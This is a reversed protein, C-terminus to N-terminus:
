EVHQAAVFPYHEKVIWSEGDHILLTLRHAVFDFHIELSQFVSWAKYFMEPNLDHFAITLHPIFDRNRDQKSVIGLDREMANRLQTHLAMLGDRRAVDVYLVRPEFANFGDLM